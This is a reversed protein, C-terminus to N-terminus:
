RGALWAVGLAALVDRCAVVDDIRVYEETSHLGAGGPGFLVSPIGAEGLVAADTWFSMGVPKADVELEGACQRLLATLRHDASTEYPPRSFVIRATAQFDPDEHRLASL